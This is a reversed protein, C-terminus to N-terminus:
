YYKTPAGQSLMPSRILLLTSAMEVSGLAAKTVGM